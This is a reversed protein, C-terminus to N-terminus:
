ENTNDKRVWGSVLRYWPHGNFQAAHERAQSETDGYTVPGRPEYLPIGDADTNDPSTGWQETLGLADILHRAWDADSNIPRGCKCDLGYPRHEAVADVTDM